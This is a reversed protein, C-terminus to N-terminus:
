VSERVADDIYAREAYKLNLMQICLREGIESDDYIRGQKLEKIRYGDPSGCRTTLMRIMM